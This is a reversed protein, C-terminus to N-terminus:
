LLIQQQYSIKMNTYQMVWLVKVMVFLPLVIVRRFWGKLLNLLILYLMTEIQRGM